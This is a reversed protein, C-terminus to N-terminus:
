PFMPQTVKLVTNKTEDVLYRHSSHAIEVLSYIVADGFDVLLNTSKSYLVNTRDLTVYRVRGPGFATILASGARGSYIHNGRLNVGVTANPHTGTLRIQWQGNSDFYNGSIDIAKASYYTSSIHLGGFRNAELLCGNLSLQAAGWRLGIGENAWFQCGVFQTNNGNNHDITSVSHYGNGGNDKFSCQSWYNCWNSGDVFVGHSSAQAVHVNNARIHEGGDVFIGHSGGKFVINELTTGRHKKIILCPFDGTAKIVTRFGRGMLRMNPEDVVIPEAIEFEGVPLAYGRQMHLKIRDTISM